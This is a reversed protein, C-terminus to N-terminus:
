LDSLVVIWGLFGDRLGKQVRSSLAISSFGFLFLTTWTPIGDATDIPGIAAALSFVDCKRHYVANALLDIATTDAHGIVIKNSTLDVPLIYCGKDNWSCTSIGMSWSTFVLMLVTMLMRISLAMRMLVPSMLM